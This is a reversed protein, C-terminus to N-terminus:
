QFFLIMDPENALRIKRKQGQAV